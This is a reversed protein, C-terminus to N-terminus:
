SPCRARWSSACSEDVARLLLAAANRQELATRAAAYDSWVHDSIRDEREHVDQEAERKEAQAAALRSERKLGDFITWKLNFRRMTTGSPETLQRM